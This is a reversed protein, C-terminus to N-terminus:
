NCSIKDAILMPDIETPEVRGMATFSAGAVCTKPPQDKTAVAMIECPRSTKVDVVYEGQSNQLFVANKGAASGITGSIAISNQPKCDAAIASSALLVSVVSCVLLRLM